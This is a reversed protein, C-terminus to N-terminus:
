EGKAKRSKRSRRQLKIGFVKSISVCFVVVGLLSGQLLPILHGDWTQPLAEYDGLSATSEDLSQKYSLVASGSSNKIQFHITRSQWDLDILGYNTGIFYDHPSHRHSNFNELLPKCMRGYLKPQGCHHTLGSSTFELYGKEGSVEGHHVDGSLFFIQASNPNSYHIKLLDWLREKENPFHGWSEMAPNTTWIQVSSVILIIKTKEDDDDQIRSHQLTQELWDWQDQGLFENQHCNEVGWLWSYGSLKLGATLWRTLCAITNGMPIKTALSPICHDQRFWRTDLLILKVKGGELDVSHYAGPRSHPKYGIFNFFTAKREDKDPMSVGIDNGGFDHDDWTGYIKVGSKLFKRYGITENHYKMEDFEKRLEMPGAPGYRKKGTKPDRGAPYIADGAWVFVDPEEKSIKEWISPIRSKKNKHCSGFAIKTSTHSKRTSNIIEYTM